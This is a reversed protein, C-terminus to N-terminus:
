VYRHDLGKRVLLQLSAHRFQDLVVGGVENADIGLAGTNIRGVKLGM